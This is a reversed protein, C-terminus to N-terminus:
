SKKKKLKFPAVLCKRPKLVKLNVESTMSPLLRVQTLMWAALFGEAVGTVTGLVLPCVQVSYPLLLLMTTTQANSETSKEALKTTAPLGYRYLYSPSPEALTKWTLFAMAGHAKSFPIAEERKLSIYSVQLRYQFVCIGDTIIVSIRQCFSQQVNLSSCTGSLWCFFSKRFSFSKM